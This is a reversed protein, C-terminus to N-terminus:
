RRLTATDSHKLAGRGSNSELLIRMKRDIKKMSEFRYPTKKKKKSDPRPLTGPVGPTGDISPPDTVINLVTVVVVGKM